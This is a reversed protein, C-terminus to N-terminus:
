QEKKVAKKAYERMFKLVRARTSERCERGAELVFVFKPQKLAMRGFTSKNKRFVEFKENNSWKPINDGYYPSSDLIDIGL